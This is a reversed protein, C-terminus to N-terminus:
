PTPEARVPNTLSGVGSITVTVVDGDKLFIKPDRSFGVGAPTGTAIIDGPALTILSSIYEILRAVPHIMLSTTTSQMVEGNVETTLELAQPDPVEDRTVLAPGCPGSTDFSKGMLWQPSALQLDRASVDNLVMYGAVHDLAHARDVHRSRKGIVVALEGEWDVWDPATAPLVVDAGDGILATNFKSFVVPDAQTGLTADERQAEEVHDRYNLGICLVKEPDPIPPGLTVDARPRGDTAALTRSAGALAELADPDARALISKVSHWQVRGDLGAESACAQADVVRDDVLVGARLPGSGDAYSVLRM